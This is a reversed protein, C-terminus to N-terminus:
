PRAYNYSELTTSTAPINSPAAYGPPPPQHVVLEQYANTFHSHSVDLTAYDGEHVPHRHHNNSPVDYHGAATVSAASKATLKTSHRPKPQPKPKSNKSYYAKNEKVDSTCQGETDDYKIDNSKISIRDADDDDAKSRIQPIDYHNGDYSARNNAELHQQKEKEFESPGCIADYIHEDYEPLTTENKNHGQTRPDGSYM